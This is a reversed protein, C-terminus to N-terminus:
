QSVAEPGLPTAGWEVQCLLDYARQSSRETGEANGRAPDNEALIPPIEGGVQRAWRDGAPTRDASHHTLYGNDVLWRGIQVPFSSGGDSDDIPGGRVDPHAWVVNVHRSSSDGDHRFTVFMAPQGDVLAVYAQSFEYSKPFPDTTQFVKVDGQTTSLSGLFAVVTPVEFPPPCFMDGWLSEDTM